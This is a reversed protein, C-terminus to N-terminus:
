GAGSHAAQRAIFSEIYTDEDGDPFIKYCRKRMAEAEPIRGQRALVLSLNICARSSNRDLDLATRLHMEAAALDGTQMASGGLALEHYSSGPVRLEAPLPVESRVLLVSSFDEYLRRWRGTALLFRPQDIRPVQPTALSLWLFYDAGSAEVVDMWGPLMYQVRRYDDFTRDGYVSDARSDIYVKMRGQTRYQVYGGWGFYSLVRGSLGNQEVFDMTDVPFSDLTSLHPFAREGLPDRALLVLAVAALLVPLAIRPLPHSEATRRDRKAPKSSPRLERPTSPLVQASLFAASIAFLPIFRGSRLAMFFTLVGL